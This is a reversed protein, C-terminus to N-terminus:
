QAGEAEAVPAPACYSGVAPQGTWNPGAGPDAGLYRFPLTVAGGPRGTSPSGTTAPATASGPRVCASQRIRRYGERGLHDVRLVLEPPLLEATRRVIRGGLPSPLERDPRM